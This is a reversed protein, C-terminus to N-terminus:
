WEDPCQFLFLAVVWWPVPVFCPVVPNGSRKCMDLCSYTLLCVHHKVDVSVVLSILSPSFLPLPYPPPPLLLNYNYRDSRQWWWFSEQMLILLSSLWKLTENITLSLIVLCHGCVVIKSSFSSGFRIRVSTGRSVLRVGEALGFRSVGATHVPIGSCEFIYCSPFVVVSVCFLVPVIIM